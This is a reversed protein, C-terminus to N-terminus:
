AQPQPVMTVEPTITAGSGSNGSQTNRDSNSGADNAAGRGYGGRRSGRSRSRNNIDTGNSRTNWRNRGNGGWRNGDEGFDIVQRSAGYYIETVFPKKPEPIEKLGLIEDLTVRDKGSLTVGATGKGTPNYMMRLTGHDRALTIIRAQEQTLELTMTNGSRRVSSGQTQTNIALVRIGSMLAMTMGGRFREDMRNTKPTFNVDVFQGPQVHGDVIATGDSLGVSIARMSPSSLPLAPRQGVPYLSSSRIPNARSIATKVVTGILREKTLVYDSQSRLRDVRVPGLVLHKSTIVTGPEMDQMAMPVNRTPITAVKKETAWLGKAIYAIILGGVILLMILTITAPTIKM